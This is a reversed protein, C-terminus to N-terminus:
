TGTTNTSIRAAHFAYCDHNTAGIAFAFVNGDRGAATSADDQGAVAVRRTAGTRRSVHHLHDRAGKPPHPIVQTEANLM